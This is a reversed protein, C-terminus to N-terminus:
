SEPKLQRRRTVPRPTRANRRTADGCESADEPQIGAGDPVVVGEMLTRRLRSSLIAPRTSPVNPRTKRVWTRGPRSRGCARARSPRACSPRPRACRRAWRTRRRARARPDRASRPRRAALHGVLERGVQELVGAALLEREDAARLDVNRCRRAGAGPRTRCGPAARGRAAGRSAPASCASWPCM